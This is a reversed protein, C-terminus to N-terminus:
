QVFGMEQQKALKEQLEKTLREAEETMRVVAEEHAKIYSPALELKGPSLDSPTLAIMRFHDSVDTGTIMALQVLQVINAIVTDSLLYNTM